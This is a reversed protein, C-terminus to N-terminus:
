PRATISHRLAVLNDPAVLILGERPTEIESILFIPASVILPLVILLITTRRQESAGLLFNASIAVILMLAWAAIPIHNWWAGQTYNESGLVDNMGAAVLALTPPPNPQAAISSVQSWLDDELKTTEADVEVLRAEDTEQYFRIRVDLYKALLDRMAKAQPAPLLSAREYEVTIANAEREELTKREDYRSVSMSFSFGILLALLTLNAGLVTNFDAREAGELPKGRRRYFHGLYAAIWQLILSVFFIPIPHQFIQEIQGSGSGITALSLSAFSFAREQVSLHSM